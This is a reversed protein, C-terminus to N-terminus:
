NWRNGKRTFRRGCFFCKHPKPTPKRAASPIDTGSGGLMAAGSSRATDVESYTPPPDQGMATGPRMPAAPSVPNQIMSVHRPKSAISRGHMPIELVAQSVEVQKTIETLPMRVVMQNQLPAPEKPEIKWAYDIWANIADVKRQM